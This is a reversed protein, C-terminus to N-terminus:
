QVDSATIQNALHNNSSTFKQGIILVTRRVKLKWCCICLHAGKQYYNYWYCAFLSVTVPVPPYSPPFWGVQCGLDKMKLSLNALGGFEQGFNMNTGIM